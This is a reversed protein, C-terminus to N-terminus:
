ELIIFFIPTSKSWNIYFSEHLLYSDRKPMQINNENSYKETNVTEWQKIENDFNTHIIKEHNLLWIQMKVFTKSCHFTCFNFSLNHFYQGFTKRTMYRNHTNCINLWETTDLEAAMLVTAWWTGRDMSNELCSYQLQNSKGGGSSRGSGLILGPDRADGANAHLNKVVLEVQSARM